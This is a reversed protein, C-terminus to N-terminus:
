QANNINDELLKIKKLLVEQEEKQRCLVKQMEAMLPNAKKSDTNIFGMNNERTTIDSTLNEYTRILREKEKRLTAVSKDSVNEVFGTFLSLKREIEDVRLRDFQKNLVKKYESYLGDKDKFPVFGIANYEAILAKLGAFSNEAYAAIKELVLKKKQLNEVQEAVRGSQAKEKAAFFADCATIFRTWIQDSVKKSVPGITKWEQQLKIFKDTAEKWETSDKLAEAKECLARKKELNSASIEKVEKYFQSKAKFIDDCAKRFKEYIQTNAKKPAFGIQKWAEQLELVKATIEDWVKYTNAESYAIQAVAECLVTKKELNEEERVKKGQYFEAHKKNIIDSASKFRNWLGDRLEPAVPGLERWEAHLQQLKQFADNLNAEKALKEVAECLATKVELNKKFDYDRLENSIKVFDYFQEMYMQYQKVLEGYKNPAVQGADKWEQQLQRVQPFTKDVSDSSEILQRLKELIDKKIGYAREHMLESQELELARKAKYQALIEKLLAEEEFTHVFNAMEKGSETLAQRMETLLAEQRRYFLAKLQAIEQRNNEGETAVKLRNVIEALSLEKEESSEMNLFNFTDM